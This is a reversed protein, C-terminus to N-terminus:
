ERLFPDQQGATLKKWNPNILRGETAETCTLTQLMTESASASLGEISKEWLKNADQCLSGGRDKEDQMRLVWWSTQTIHVSQKQM